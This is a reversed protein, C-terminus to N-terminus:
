SCPMAATAAAASRAQVDRVANGRSSQMAIGQNRNPAAACPAAVVGVALFRGFFRLCTRGISSPCHRGPWSEPGRHTSPTDWTLAWESHGRFRSGVTLGERRREPNAPRTWHHWYPPASRTRAVTKGMSANPAFFFQRSVVTRRM